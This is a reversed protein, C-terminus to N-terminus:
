STDANTLGHQPVHQLSPHHSMGLVGSVTAFIIQSLISPLMYVGSLTPSAHRVAQFYIPLYYSTILQSAFFFFSVMSGSWVPRQRVMSFPVMAGDGMRYQWGLFVCFTGLAGCFLGIITANDWDYRIGGWQLALLLQIAAPAFLAFGIVDLEKLIISISSKIGAKASSDPLEVLLLLIAVAGGVPLNIYFCWRWTTYQTFAGGILPGLVIGIQSTSIMIGLYAPRKVLPVCAAVITLAGNMLGSAGIGAVARGVILM